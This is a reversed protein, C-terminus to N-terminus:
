PRTAQKQPVLYRRAVKSSWLGFAAIAIGLAGLSLLDSTAPLFWAVVFVVSWGLFTLANVAYLIYRSWPWLFVLGGAAILTPVVWLAFWVSAYRYGNWVNLAAYALLVLVIAGIALPPPANKEM